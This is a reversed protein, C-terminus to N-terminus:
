LQESPLNLLCLIYHFFINARPLSIKNNSGWLASEDLHNESLDQYCVFKVAVFFSVETVFRFRFEAVASNLTETLVSVFEIPLELLKKRYTFLSLWEQCNSVYNM